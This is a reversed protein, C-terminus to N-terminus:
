SKTFLMELDDQLSGCARVSLLSVQLIESRSTKINPAHAQAPHKLRRNMSLVMESPAM